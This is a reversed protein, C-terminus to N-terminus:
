YCCPSKWLLFLLEAQQSVCWYDKLTVIEIILAHMKTSPTKSPFFSCLRPFWVKIETHKLPESFLALWPSQFLPDPDWIHLALGVWMQGEQKRGPTIHICVGRKQGETYLLFTFTVQPRKKLEDTTTIHKYWCYRTWKKRSKFPIWRFFNSM